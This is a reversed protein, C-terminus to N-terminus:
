IFGMANVGPLKVIITLFLHWKKVIIIIHQNRIRAFPAHWSILDLLQVSIRNAPMHAISQMHRIARKQQSPVFLCLALIFQM